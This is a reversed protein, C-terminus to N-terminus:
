RRRRNLVNFRNYFIDKLLAQRWKLVKSRREVLDVLEAYLRDELSNESRQFASKLIWRLGYKYQKMLPLPRPSKHEKVGYSYSVIWLPPRYAQILFVLIFNPDVRYKRKLRSLVSYALTVRKQRSKLPLCNIFKMVFWSGFLPDVPNFKLVRRHWYLQPNQKSM